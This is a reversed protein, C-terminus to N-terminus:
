QNVAEQAAVNMVAQALKHDELIADAKAEANALLFRTMTQQRLRSARRIKAKQKKTDFVLRIAPGTKM